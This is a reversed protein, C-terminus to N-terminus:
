IVIFTGVAGVPTSPKLHPVPVTLKDAEPPLPIKCQNSAGDAPVSKPVPAVNVM